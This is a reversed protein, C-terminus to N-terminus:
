NGDNSAIMRTEHRIQDKKGLFIRGLGLGLHDVCEVIFEGSEAAEVSSEKGSRIVKSSGQHDFEKNSLARIRQIEKSCRASIALVRELPGFKSRAGKGGGKV